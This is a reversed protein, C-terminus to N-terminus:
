GWFPGQPGNACEGDLKPLYAFVVYELYLASMNKQEGRTNSGPPFARSLMIFGNTIALAM